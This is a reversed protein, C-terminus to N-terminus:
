VSITWGVRKNRQQEQQSRTLCFKRTIELPYQKQRQCIHSIFYLRHRFLPFDQSSKNSIMDNTTSSTSEVSLHFILLFIYLYSIFSYYAM